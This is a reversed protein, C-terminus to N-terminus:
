RPDGNYQNRHIAQITGIPVWSGHNHSFEYETGHAGPRRRTRWAPAKGLCHPCPVQSVTRNCHDCQLDALRRKCLPRPEADRRKADIRVAATPADWRFGGWRRQARVFVAALFDRTVGFSSIGALTALLSPQTEDVGGLMLQYVRFAADDTLDNPNV